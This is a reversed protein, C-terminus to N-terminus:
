LFLEAMNQPSSVPGRSYLIAQGSVPGKIYLGILSSSKWICGLFVLILHGINVWVMLLVYSSDTYVGWVLALTFVGGILSMTSYLVTNLVCISTVGLVLAISPLDELVVLSTGGCFCGLCTLLGMSASLKERGLLCGCLSIGSVTGVWRVIYVWPPSTWLSAIPFPFSSSSLSPILILLVLLNMGSYGLTKYSITFTSPTPDNPHSEISTYTNTCPSSPHIPCENSTSEFSCKSSTTPSICICDVCTSDLGIWYHIGNFQQIRFRTFVLILGVNLWEFVATVPFNDVQPFVYPLIFPFSLLFISSVM